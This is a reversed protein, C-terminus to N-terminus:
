YVEVFISPNQDVFEKMQKLGKKTIHFERHYFDQKGYFSIVIRGNEKQNTADLAKSEYMNELFEIMKNVDKKSVSMNVAYFENTFEPFYESVFNGNMQISVDDFNGQPIIEVYKMLDMQNVAFRLGVSAILVIGFTLINQFSIMIKRKSFFIAMCYLMLVLIYEFWSDCMCLICFAFLNVLLPYGLITQTTEQSEEVARQNFSFYALFFCGVALVLWYLLLVGDFTADVGFILQYFYQGFNEVMMVPTLFKIYLANLVPFIEHTEVGIFHLEDIKQILSYVLYQISSVFAVPLLLYGAGIALTDFIHNSRVSIATAITYFVFMEFTLLFIYLVVVSFLQQIMVLVILSHAFLSLGLTVFGSFFVYLFLKKREIPLSFYLENYNKKYLFRFNYIPVLISLVIFLITVILIFSTVVSQSSYKYNWRQVYGSYVPLLILLILNVTILIRRNEIIYQKYFDNFTRM